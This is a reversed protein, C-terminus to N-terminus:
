AGAGFIRVIEEGVCPALAFGVKGLGAVAWAGGKLGEVKLGEIRRILPLRPVQVPRYGVWAEVVEVGALGPWMAVGARQLRDIERDLGSIPVLVGLARGSAGSGLTSKELVTVRHGARALMLGSM